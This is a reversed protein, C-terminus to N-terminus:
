SGTKLKKTKEYRKKDKGKLSSEAQQNLHKLEMLRGLWTWYEKQGVGSGIIGLIAKKRITYYSAYGNFNLGVLWEQVEKTKVALNSQDGLLRM